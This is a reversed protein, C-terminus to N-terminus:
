ESMMTSPPAKRSTANRPSVTCYRVATCDSMKRASPAKPRQTVTARLAVAQRGVWAQRRGGATRMATALAAQRTGEDPCADCAEFAVFAAAAARGTSPLPAEPDEPIASEPMEGLLVVADGGLRRALAALRELAAADRRALPTAFAQVALIAYAEEPDSVYIEVDDVITMPPGAEVPWVALPPASAAAALVLAALM